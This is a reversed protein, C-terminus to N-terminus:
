FYTKSMVWWSMLVELNNFFVDVDAMLWSDCCLIITDEFSYSPILFSFLVYCFSCIYTCINLVFWVINILSWSLSILFFYSVINRNYNTWYSSYFSSSNASLIIGMKTRSRCNAVMLLTFFYYCIYKWKIFMCM